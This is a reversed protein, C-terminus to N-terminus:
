EQQLAFFDRIHAICERVNKRLFGDKWEVYVYRKLSFDSIIRLDFMGNAFRKGWTKVPVFALGMQETLLRRLVDPNDVQITTKPHLNHKECETRISQELSWAPNLSIFHEDTLDSLCIQTAYFLRHNQPVALLIDEELLLATYPNALPTPSAYIMLDVDNYPSENYNHQSIRFTTNPLKERLHIMLQPLFYSACRMNINIERNTMQNNESIEELANNYLRSMENVCRLFIKGNENLSLHKGNRDFLPYGIENELRKITQSLSSQSIYLAEASKSINLTNAVSLFYELHLKDM